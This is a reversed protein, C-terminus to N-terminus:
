PQNNNEGGGRKGGGSATLLPVWRQRVGQQLNEGGGVGALGMV